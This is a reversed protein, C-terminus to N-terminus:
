KDFPHIHKQKNKNCSTFPILINNNYKRRVCSFSALSSAGSSTEGYPPIYNFSPLSSIFSAVVVPDTWLDELSLYTPHAPCAFIHPVTQDARTCEPCIATMFGGVRFQYHNVAVCYGSRLQSLAPRYPRPMSVEAADVLLPPANFLKSNSSAVIATQIANCHLTTLTHKRMAIPIVDDVLFLHIDHYFRAQLTHRIARPGNNMTVVSHSPHDPVM